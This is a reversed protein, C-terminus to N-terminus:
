ITQLGFVHVRFLEVLPMQISMVPVQRSAAPVFGRYLGRAGEERVITVACRLVAASGGGYRERGGPSYLRTRVTDAPMCAAQAVLGSLSSCGFHLAPGDAVGLGAGLVAQKSADYSALQGASMLSARAVNAAAGGWLARVGRPGRAVDGFAALTSRHRPVHGRRLGSVYLGSRADLRGSEGQLRIRVLDVPSAVAAALAGTCAGSAVKTGLGDGGGAAALLPKVTPYLGVRLGTYAGARLWTAPLGPLWIGLAGEEEVIRAAAQLMTTYLRRETDVQLRTKVVELPNFLTDTIAAGLGAAGVGKAATLLCSSRRARRPEM